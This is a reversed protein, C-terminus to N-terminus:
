HPRPRRRLTLLVIEAVLVAVPVAPGVGAASTSPLAVLPPVPATAPAPTPAGEAAAVPIRVRSGQAGTYLTVVQGTQTAVTGQASNSFVFRLRHGARVIYDTYLSPFSTTVKQGPSLFSGGTPISRGRPKISDRYYTRLWGYTISFPGKDKGDYLDYAAATAAAGPPVDVIEIAISTDPGGLSYALDFQFQGSIRTAAAFPATTFAQTTPAMNGLVSDDYNVSGSPASDDVLRNDPTLSVIRDSGAAPYATHGAFRGDEGQVEVPSQLLAGADVGKLFQLFWRHAADRYHAQFAFPQLHGASRDVQPVPSDPDIHNGNFYMLRKPLRAPLAEWLNGSNLTKVNFDFLGHMILTAARFGAADKVFDRGKWFSATADQFPSAYGADVALGLTAICAKREVLHLPLLLDDTGANQTDMGAFVATFEAPTLRHASSQVGNFFHYEYWADIGRIPIIAALADKHKGSIPEEAAAGIAITGDYSGGTMGVKGNSWPQDAIWDIVDVADFVENRDGYVECGSTNRTGRLDMLVVAYGRPVFYDDYWEPFPVAPGPGLLPVGPSTPYSPGFHPTKHESKYGRGLTNYYPSAVMITPVRVATKPRIYDVWVQNVKDRSPVQKFDVIADAYSYKVPDVQNLDPLGPAAARAALPTSAGGLLALLALGALVRVRM